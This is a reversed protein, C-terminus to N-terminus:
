ERDFGGSPLITTKNLLCTHESVVPVPKNWQTDFLVQLCKEQTYKLKIESNPKSTDHSAMSELTCAPKSWDIIWREQESEFSKLVCACAEGQILPEQRNKSQTVVCDDEARGFVFYSSAEVAGTGLLLSIAALVLTKQM